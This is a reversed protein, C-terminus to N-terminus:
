SVELGNSNVVEEQEYMGSEREPAKTHKNRALECVKNRVEFKM